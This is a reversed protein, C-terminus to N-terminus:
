SSCHATPGIAAGVLLVIVILTLMAGWLGFFYWAITEIVVCVFVIFVTNWIITSIREPIPM